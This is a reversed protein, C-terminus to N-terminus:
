AASFERVGLWTGKQRLLAQTQHGTLNGKGEKRDKGIVNQWTCSAELDASAQAAGAEVM